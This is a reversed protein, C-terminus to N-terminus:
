SLFSQCPHRMVAFSLAELHDTMVTRRIEPAISKTKDFIVASPHIGDAQQFNPYPHEIRM